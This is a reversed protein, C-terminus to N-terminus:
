GDICGGPPLEHPYYGGKAGLERRDRALIVQLADWAENGISRGYKAGAVSDLEVECVPKGADPHGTVMLFDYFGFTDVRMPWAMDPWWVYCPTGTQTQYGEREDPVILAQVGWRPAKEWEERTTGRVVSGDDFYLHWGTVTYWCARELNGPLGKGPPLYRLAERYALCAGGGEGLDCGPDCFWLLDRSLRWM